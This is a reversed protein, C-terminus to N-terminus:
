RRRQLQIGLVAGGKAMEEQMRASLAGASSVEELSPRLRVTNLNPAIISVVQEKTSPLYLIQVDLGGPFGAESMLKHALERNTSAEGVDTQRRAAPFELIVRQRIRWWDISTLIAQQIRPDDFPRGGGTIIIDHQQARVPLPTAAWLAGIALFLSSIAAWRMHLACLDSFRIVMNVLNQPAARTTCDSVSAHFATM